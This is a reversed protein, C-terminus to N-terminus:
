RSFVFTTKKSALQQANTAPTSSGAYSMVRHPQVGRRILENRIAQARRHGAQAEETNSSVNQLIEMSMDRRQIMVTAVSDLLPVDAASIGNNEFNIAVDVVLQKDNSRSVELNEKPLQALLDTSQLGGLYSGASMAASAYVEEESDNDTNIHLTYSNRLSTYIGMFVNDFDFVDRLQHVSGSTQESMAYLATEDAVGYSVCYITADEKQAMATVEALEAESSNDEGDTFLVVIKRTNAPAKHLENLGAITADFIATGDSRLNLGNVRFQNMYEEKNNTLPVEVSVRSTFKTISVYDAGDFTSLASQIARQMRIARPVTMSPSHDLVFAVAYSRGSVEQSETVSINNSTANINLHESVFDKWLIGADINSALNPAAYGTISKGSFDNLVLKVDISKSNTTKSLVSFKAKGSSVLERVPLMAGVQDSPMKTQADNSGAFAITAAFTLAIIYTITSM